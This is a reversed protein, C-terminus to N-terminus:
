NKEKLTKKKADTTPEQVTGLLVEKYGKMLARALFKKSWMRWDQQKGSFPIIRIAKDSGEASSTM